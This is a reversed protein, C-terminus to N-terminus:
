RFSTPTKEVSIISKSDSLTRKMLGGNRCKHFAVVLVINKYCNRWIKKRKKRNRGQIKALYYTISKKSLFLHKLHCFTLGFENFQYIKIL